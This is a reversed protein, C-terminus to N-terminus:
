KNAVEEGGCCSVIDWQGTYRVSFVLAGFVLLAVGGGTGGGSGLIDTLRLGM